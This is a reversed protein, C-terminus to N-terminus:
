KWDETLKEGLTLLIDSGETEGKTLQCGFRNQLYTATKSVGFSSYTVICNKPPVGDDESLDVVRIGQGEIVRSLTVASPYSTSYIIKVEKAEDRLSAHYFFGKYKKLFRKESFNSDGNEAEQAISRLVVFDQVRYKSILFTLYFKDFLSANSTYDSSFLQRIFARPIFAPTDTDLKEFVGSKKPLVYYDVYASSMSGFTRGMLDPDSELESLKGLSGVPYRGYGGPVSVKDAHSFSVIYRVDDALGFSLLVAEEDYFVINIRDRKDLLLSTRFSRVAVFALYVVVLAVAAYILM